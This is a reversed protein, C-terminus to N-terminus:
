ARPSPQAPHRRPGAGDRLVQGRPCIRRRAAAAAARAPLRPRPASLITFERDMDHATKIQAGFPPRRLVLEREGVHVLYTLNSHGGPFQEVTVPAGPM